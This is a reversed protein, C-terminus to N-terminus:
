AKIAIKTESDRTPSDQPKAQLNVCGFIYPHEWTTGKVEPVFLGRGEELMQRRMALVQDSTVAWELELRMVLKENQYLEIVRNAEFVRLADGIAVLDTKPGMDHYKTTRHIEFRRKDMILAVVFYLKGEEPKDEKLKEVKRRM